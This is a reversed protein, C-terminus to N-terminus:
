NKWVSLLVKLLGFVFTESGTALRPGCFLVSVAVPGLAEASAWGRAEQCM